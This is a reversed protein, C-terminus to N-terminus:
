KNDLRVVNVTDKFPTRSATVLSIRDAILRRGVLADGSLAAFGEDIAGLEDSSIVRTFRGLTVHLEQPMSWPFWLEGAPAVSKLASWIGSENCEVPVVISSGKRRPKGGTFSASLARGWDVLKMAEIAVASDEEVKQGDREMGFHVACEFLTIHLGPEGDRDFPSQWRVSGALSTQGKLSYYYELLVPDVLNALVSVDYLPIEYRATYDPLVAADTVVSLKLLGSGSSGILTELRAERNPQESLVAGRLGGILDDTIATAFVDLRDTDGFLVGADYVHDISLGATRIQHIEDESFAYSLDLNDHNPHKLPENSAIRFRVEYDDSIASALISGIVVEALGCVGILAHPYDGIGLAGGIIYPPEVIVPDPVIVKCGWMELQRILSSHHKGTDYSHTVLRLNEVNCEYAAAIAEVNKRLFNEPTGRFDINIFAKAKTAIVFAQLDPFVPLEPALGALSYAGPKGLATLTTGDIVDLALKRAGSAKGSRVPDFVWEGAEDKGESISIGGVEGHQWLENFAEGACIDLRKKASKTGLRSASGQYRITSLAASLTGLLAFIATPELLSPKDDSCIITSTSVQKCSISRLKGLLEPQWVANLMEELRAEITNM